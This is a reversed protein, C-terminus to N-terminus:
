DELRRSNLGIYLILIVLAMSFWQIAYSRNKEPGSAVPQWTQTYAAADSQDLQLLYPAMTYGLDLSIQEIEVDRIIKPWSATSVTPGIGFSPLKGPLDALVGRILRQQESVSIVPLDQRSKGLPQWGRNVLMVAKGNAYWFPTIVLFGPRGKEIRNDLLYQHQSDFKGRISLRRFRNEANIGQATELELEQLNQSLTLAQQTEAKEVARSLQWMGLSVLIAFVLGAILSTTVSPRFEFKGVQM